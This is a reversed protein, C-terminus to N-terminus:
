NQLKSARSWYYKLMFSDIPKYLQSITVIQTEYIKMFYNVSNSEMSTDCFVGELLIVFATSHSTTCVVISDVCFVSRGELFVKLDM